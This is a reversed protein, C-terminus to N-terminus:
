ITLFGKALQSALSPKLNPILCPGNMSCHPNQSSLFFLKILLFSTIYFPCLLDWLCSWRLTSVLHPSSYPYLLLLPGDRFLQARVQPWPTWPVTALAKRVVAFAVMAPCSCPERLATGDTGPLSINVNKLVVRPVLQWVAPISWTLRCFCLPWFESEWSFKPPM